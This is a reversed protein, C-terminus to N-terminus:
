VIISSDRDVEDLGEQLARFHIGQFYKKRQAEVKAPVFSSAGSASFIQYEATLVADEDRSTRLTEILTGLSKHQVSVDPHRRKVTEAVNNWCTKQGSMYTYAEWTPASLLAVMGKAADRAWTIDIPEKGTGPIVIKGGTLDIPVAEGIDKLYRNKAPVVYDIFWGVSVLTWELENQDRLVKRIPERTRYYFSPLDPYDELNGGFESPVFRKCNPSRKCAEILALHIDVYAQTYDLITSILAKCDSIRPTLSEVSYDTVRQEIGTGKLHPKHSRTLIVLEHGHKPFEDCFYRAVDGSGAIAVRM